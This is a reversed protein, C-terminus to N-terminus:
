APLEVTVNLLDTISTINNFRIISMGGCVEEPKLGKLKKHICDSDTLNRVSVSGRREEGGRQERNRTLTLKLLLNTLAVSYQITQKGQNEEGTM